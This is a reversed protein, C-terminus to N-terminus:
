LALSHLTLFGCPKTTVPNNGARSRMERAAERTFTLSLIQDVPVYKALWKFREVIVKTKGSGAWALCCFQGERTDVAAQQEANLPVDTKKGKTPAFSFGTQM